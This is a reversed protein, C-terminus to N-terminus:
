ELLQADVPLAGDKGTGRIEVPQQIPVPEVIKVEPKSIVVGAAAVADAHRAIAVSTTNLSTSITVGAGAVATAHNQISRELRATARDIALWLGVAIVICGVVLAGGLVTAARVLHRSDAEMTQFQLRRRRPRHSGDRARQFSAALIIM